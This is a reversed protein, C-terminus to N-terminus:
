CCLLFSLRHRQLLCSILMAGWCWTVTDPFCPRYVHNLIVYNWLPILAQWRGVFPQTQFINPPIFQAYFPLDRVNEKGHLLWSSSVPLLTTIVLCQSHGPSCAPLFSYKVLADETIIHFSWLSSCQYICNIPTITISVSIIRSLSFARYLWDHHSM